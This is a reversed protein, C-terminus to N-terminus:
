KITAVGKITATGTIITPFRITQSFEIWPNLATTTTTDEPLLSSANDGIVLEFSRGSVGSANRRAGIEIVIRDGEQADVSTLSASGGDPFKRNTHTSSSFEHGSSADDSFSSLLTGRLTTGNKSYVKIIIAPSYNSSSQNMFGRIQGKVTGSITQAAIPDSTYQRTGVDVDDAQNGGDSRSVTSMSSNIKSTVCKLRTPPNLEWGPGFSPSVGSVSGSSPLYFRTGAFVMNSLTLIFVIILLFKKM